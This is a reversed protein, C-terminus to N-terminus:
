NTAELWAQASQRDSPPYRRVPLNLDEELRRVEAQWAGDALIAVREVHPRLELRAFFRISEAEADWGQLRTWDFLLGKPHTEAVLKNFEPMNQVLDDTRVLGSVKIVLYPRGPQHDIEFL